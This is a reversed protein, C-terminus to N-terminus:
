RLLIQLDILIPLVDSSRSLGDISAYVILQRSDPSWSPPEFESNSDHGAYLDEIHNTQLDYIM